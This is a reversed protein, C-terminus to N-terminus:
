GIRAATRSLQKPPCPIWERKFWLQKVSLSAFSGIRKVRGCALLSFSHSTKTIFRSARVRKKKKEPLMKSSKTAKQHRRGACRCGLRFFGRGDLVLRSWMSRHCPRRVDGFSKFGSLLLPAWRDPRTTVLPARGCSRTNPQGFTFQFQQGSENVRFAPAFGVFALHGDRRDYQITYFRGLKGVRHSLDDIM